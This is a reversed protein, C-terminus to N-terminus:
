VLGVRAYVATIVADLGSSTDLGSSSNPIPRRSACSRRSANIAWWRQSDSPPANRRRRGDAHYRRRPLRLGPPAAHETVVFECASRSMSRRSRQFLGSNNRSNLLLLRLRRRIVTLRGLVLASIAAAATVPMASSPGRMSLSASTRVWRRRGSGRVAGASLAMVSRASGTDPAAAGAPGTRTATSMNRAGDIM